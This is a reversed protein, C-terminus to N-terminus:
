EFNGLLPQLMVTWYFERVPLLELWVMESIEERWLSEILPGM